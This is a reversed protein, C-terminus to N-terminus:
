GAIALCDDLVGFLRERDTYNSGTWAHTLYDKQEEIEQDEIVDLNMAEVAFQGFSESIGEPWSSLVDTIVDPMSGLGCAASGLAFRIDGLNLARDQGQEPVSPGTKSRTLNVLDAIVTKIYAETATAVYEACQEAPGGPLAEEYCIPTMRNAIASEDPFEGNEHYLTNAYRRRIEIDWDVYM